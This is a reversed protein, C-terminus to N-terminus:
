AFEQLTLDDAVIEFCKKHYLRHFPTRLFYYIEKYRGIEKNCFTCNNEKANLIDVSKNLADNNPEFCHTHATIAKNSQTYPMQIIQIYSPVLALSLDKKCIYCFSDDIMRSAM